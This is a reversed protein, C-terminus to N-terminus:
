FPPCQILIDFFQTFKLDSVMGMGMTYQSSSETCYTRDFNTNIDGMYPADAMQYNQMIPQNTGAFHYFAFNKLTFRSAMFVDFM